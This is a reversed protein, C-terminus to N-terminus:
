FLGLKIGALLLPQHILYIALSHRGFFSFLSIAPKFKGVYEIPKMGRFYNKGALIGLLFFGYWPLIPFYDFTYWGTPWFGLWLLIPFDFTLQQLYIGALICTAALGIYTKNGKLEMLPISFLISAGILHLVGFWITSAPDYFYTALTILLGMGFVRLGRLLYKNNLYKQPLANKSAAYSISLSLGALFVFCFGIVRAFWWFQAENIPFTSIGLYVLAFLWNYAVMGVVAAGRASDIQWFRSAMYSICPHSFIFIAAGARSYQDRIPFFISAGNPPLLLQIQLFILMKGLTVVLGDILLVFYGIVPFLGRRLSFFLVAEVLKSQPCFAQLELLLM